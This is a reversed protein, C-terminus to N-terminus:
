SAQKQLQKIFYSPYLGTIKRFALSFAETGNYGMTHAIAEITYTRLQRNNKLERIAHHVRLENIYTAFNKNKYANVVRSLYSSNTHLKKAVDHMTINKTLFEQEKEFADLGQLITKVTEMPLRTTKEADTKESTEVAEAATYDRHKAMLEEFRRKYRRNRTYLFAGFVMLIISLFVTSYLLLQIKLRKNKEELAHQKERVVNYKAEITNIEKDLTNKTIIESITYAEYLYRYASKHDNLKEYNKAIYELNNRKIRLSKNKIFLNSEHANKIAKKYEKKLYHINSLNSLSVAIGFSNDIDKNIKLAKNAYTEAANINGASVAIRSLNDYIRSFLTNNETNEPFLLAKNYYFLASDMNNKYYEPMDIYEVRYFCSGIKLCSFIIDLTDNRKEANLVAQRYYAVAKEFNKASKFVQGIFINYEYYLRLTNMAHLKEMNALLLDISGEDYNAYYQIKAVRLDIAFKDEISLASVGKEIEKVLLRANDYDRSNIKRDIESLRELIIGNQTNNQGFLFVSAFLSTLLLTFYNKIYRSLIM